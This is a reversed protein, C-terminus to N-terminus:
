VLEREPSISSLWRIVVMKHDGECSVKKLWYWFYDFVKVCVSGASDM